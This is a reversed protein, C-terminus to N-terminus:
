EQVPESQPTRNLDRVQQHGADEVTESGPLDGPQGFSTVGLGELQKVAQQYSEFVIGRFGLSEAAAVNQETDDLFVCEGAALGFRELFRTYIAPDPKTIREQFSLLGGEMYKMFALSDRCEDYAKKSYNSLYYVRCGSGKLSRVWPIAYDRMVLMGSINAYARRLDDGIGPDLGAFAALAEEETIDAREFQEWYPSLVSAKVIRRIAPGDFGKGALFEKIRFDVLVNGIDFVVNKIM